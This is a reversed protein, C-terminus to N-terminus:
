PMVRTECSIQREASSSSTRFGAGRRDGTSSDKPPDSPFWAIRLLPRSATIEDVNQEVLDALKWVAQSRGAPTKESWLGQRLNRPRMSPGRSTLDAKWPFRQSQPKPRPTSSASPRARNPPSGNATLSSRGPRQRAHSHRKQSLGDFIRHKSQSAPRARHGRWQTRLFRVGRKRDFLADRPRLFGLSDAAGFLTM